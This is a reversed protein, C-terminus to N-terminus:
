GDIEWALRTGPTLTIPAVPFRQYLGHGVPKGPRQGWSTTPVKGTQVELWNVTLPFSNGFTNKVTLSYANQQREGLAWFRPHVIAFRGQLRSDLRLTGPNPFYCFDLMAEYVLWSAPATMYYAGWSLEGTQPRYMLRTDCPHADDGQMVELMREWVEPVKPHGLLACPALTFAEIYPLWGYLSGATGDPAAEDAPVRFQDACNLQMLADACALLRQRPLVDAGALLRAYFQGALMGAHSNENTPNGPSAYARYFHGNWLDTELREQAAALWRDITEVLQQDGEAAAWPRAITLAAIWLTGMYATTGIYHYSDYSTGLKGLQAVGNGEDAWRGHKLLAKKVKPWAQQAFADDGTTWAHRAQQIVFSCCLDPWAIPAAPKELHGHGLDHNIGGDDDQVAAFLGLETANLQPFLLQTAPHAALRQDITGYCGSMETPGENVSFRGDRFLVSNTVLPYCCNLLRHRLLTSLDTEALLRRLAAGAALINDFHKLVHTAIARGDAFHNQWYLGRNVQKTDIWNPMEWVVLMDVVAIEGPPIELTAAVSGQRPHPNVTVAGATTRALLYHHGDAAASIPSPANGYVLGRSDDITLEEASPQDPANWFRYFGDGYGIKKEEEKIGGGQGVLNPWGFRCTVTATQPQRNTVQWRLLMAPLSSTKLDHPIMTGAGHVAVDIGPLADPATLTAQPFTAEFQLEPCPLRGDMPRTALLRERNGAKVALYAGPLGDPEEFPMDQNNNGSFNRFRGDRCLDVRGVGIGGLPVGSPAWRPDELCRLWSDAQGSELFRMWTCLLLDVPPLGDPVGAFALQGDGRAMPMRCLVVWTKGTEAAPRQRTGGCGQGPDAQEDTSRLGTLKAAVSIAAVQAAWQQDVRLCVFYHLAGLASPIHLALPTQLDLERYLLEQHETEDFLRAMKGVKDNISLGIGALVGQPAFHEM